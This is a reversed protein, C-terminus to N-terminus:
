PLPATRTRRQSPRGRSGAVAVAVCSVVAVVILWFAPKKYHLVHKIRGDTGGEGFALPTDSIIRRGAALRLLSASHDARIDSGMRRLRCYFHASYGLM